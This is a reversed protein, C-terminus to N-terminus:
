PYWRGHARSSLCRLCRTTLHEHSCAPCVGRTDFTNWMFGCACEWRSLAEPVWGCDPCRAGSAHTGAPISAEKRRFDIVNRAPAVGSADHHCRWTGGIGDITDRDKIFDGRAFVHRAVEFLWGGVRGPEHDRFQVQLDRLAFASLGLTDMVLTGEDPGVPRFMRVNVPGQRIPDTPDPVVYKAPDVIRQSPIWHIALVPLRAILARLLRQFLELREASQLGPVDSVFLVTRARALAGRNDDGAPWDWTQELAAERAAADGGTPAYAVLHSMPIPNGEKFQTRHDLYWLSLAGDPLPKVDIAGSADGIAQVIAAANLTVRETLLLEVAYPALPGHLANLAANAGTPIASGPMPTRKATFSSPTL